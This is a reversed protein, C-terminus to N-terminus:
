HLTIRQDNRAQGPIPESLRAVIGELRRLSAEWEERGSITAAASVQPAPKQQGFRPAHIEIGGAVVLCLYGIFVALAQNGPEGWLHGAIPMLLILPLAPLLRSERLAAAIAASADSTSIKLDSRATTRIATM